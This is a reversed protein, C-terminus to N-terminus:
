TMARLHQALISTWPQDATVGQYSPANWTEDCVFYASWNNGVGLPNEFFLRTLYGSHHHPYLLLRMTHDLGGSPFTAAPIIVVAKDGDASLYSDPFIVKIGEFQEDVNSM